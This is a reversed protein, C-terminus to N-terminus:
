PGGCFLLDSAMLPSHGAASLDVVASWTAGSNTSTAVQVRYNTGDSSRWTVTQTAGDASMAVVPYLASQGAASLDVPTSGTLAASTVGALLMGPMLLAVSLVAVVILRFRM